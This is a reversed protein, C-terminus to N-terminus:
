PFRRFVCAFDVCVLLLRPGYEDTRKNALPSLFQSILYGHAGHLEIMDWGAKESRVAADAFAQVVEKIESKSLARPM